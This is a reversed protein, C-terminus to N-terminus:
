KLTYNNDRIKGKLSSLGILKNAAKRLSHSIRDKPAIVVTYKYKGKLYKALKVFDGDGSCLIFVDYKKLTDIADIALEVDFNCKLKYEGETFDYISSIPKTKIIFDLGKLKKFFAKKKAKQKLFKSHSPSNGSDKFSKKSHMGEYYFIDHINFKTELINRFKEYDIRWGDGRLSYHYNAADIFVSAKKLKSM